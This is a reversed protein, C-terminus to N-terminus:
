LSGAPVVLLAPAAALRWAMLAMAKAGIIMGDHGIESKTAETAEVTHLVLGRPGAPLFLSGPLMARDAPISVSHEPVSPRHPNM